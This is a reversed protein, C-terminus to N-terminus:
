LTCCSNYISRSLAIGSERQKASLNSELNGILAPGSSEPHIMNAALAYAYAIELNQDVLIGNEYASSLRSIADINGTGAVEQLYSISQDKWRMVKEPNRLQDTSDGIISNTDIAYYLKAEMSGQHAAIELWKEETVTRATSLGACESIKREIKELNRIHSTGSAGASPGRDAAGSLYNRCDSVALHIDFTALADGSESRPMLSLVYSLADGPPRADEMRVIQYTTASIPQFVMPDIKKRAEDISGRLIPPAAGSGIPRVWKQESSSASPRVSNQEKRAERAAFHFMSLVIGLCLMSALAYKAKM